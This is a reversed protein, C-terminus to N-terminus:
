EHGALRVQDTISGLIFKWSNASAILDHLRFREGPVMTLVIASEPAKKNATDSALALIPSLQATCVKEDIDYFIQGEFLLNKARTMKEGQLNWWQGKWDEITELAFKIFKLQDDDSTSKAIKDDTERIQAKIKIIEAKYDEALDPSNAAARLLDSKTTELNQRKRRLQETQIRAEAQGQSWVRELAKILNKRHKEDLKVSDLLRELAQHLDRRNVSRNCGRCRYKPYLKGSGGRTVGGTYRGGCSCTVITKLPFEPNAFKYSSSRKVRGSLVDLIAEHEDKTIMPRHLGSENRANIQGDKWVTGCYYPDKIFRLFKDSAMPWRDKVFEGSNLTDLAERPTALGSAVSRLAYRWPEAQTKHWQHVGPVLSKTYGPLARFPYRGQNIAFQHGNVSKKQREENSSEARFAAMVRTFRAMADDGNFQDSESAYWVKVGEMAFLVEFYPGENISRMYRDYEQFIAFKVTKHQKCYQLMELLDKRTINTGAKSSISGSWTKVIEVGLKREAVRM